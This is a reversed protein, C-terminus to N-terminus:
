VAAKSKFELEIVSDNSLPVSYKAPLSANKFTRRFSVGNLSGTIVVANSNRKAKWSRALNIGEIDPYISFKVMSFATEMDESFVDEVSQGGTSAARVNYEAFGEDFECSNPVIAIPANNVTVAVNSLPQM